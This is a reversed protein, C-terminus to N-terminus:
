CFEKLIAVATSSGFREAGAEYLTELDKRTRIGGAAKIPFSPGFIRFLLEVDEKATKALVGTSTKIWDAGAYFAGLAGAVKQEASLLAFELIVKLRVGEWFAAKVEFIECFFDSLKGEALFSHNAVMDVEAAGDQCAELAQKIKISLKNQGLPFDLTSVVRAKTGVSAAARSVWLPAVCLAGIKNEVAEFCLKDIEAGTAKFDLNTSELKKAAAQKTLEEGVRVYTEPSKTKQRLVRKKQWIEEKKLFQLVSLWEEDCHGVLRSLRGPELVELDAM